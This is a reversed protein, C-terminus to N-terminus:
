WVDVGAPYGFEPALEDSIGLAFGAVLPVISLLKFMNAFASPEL